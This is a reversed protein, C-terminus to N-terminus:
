EAQLAVAPRTRAASNGPVFAILNVLVLAAIGLLALGLAPISATPATGIGNAVIRWAYAGALVGAPLGILLGILALTTAQWAVSVRVQRRDFGLTKLLALDRRRRRVSTILAHAVAISALATLLVTLSPLFWDIHRLRELEPPATPGTAGRDTNFGGFGLPTQFQTINSLRRDLVAPDIGPAFRGVLYRTGDRSTAVRQM